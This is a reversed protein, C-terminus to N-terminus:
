RSPSPVRTRELYFGNTRDGSQLYVIGGKGFGAISRGVPMRVRHFDGKANVVDYVLEGQKSQASSTPLIWLNGDLDPMVSNLRIPPYYDPLDKLEPAIYEVPARQASPNPESPVFRRAGPQQPVDPQPRARPAMARGMSEATATRTSDILRQKDEDTLRKWDYPLKTTSHKTGDADIWDIHYDQGRVIALSGDSLLAWNDVTEIPFVSYRLPGGETARGMLKTTGGWQVIGLTDMRRTGLDARLIPVTDGKQSARQADSMARVAEYNPKPFGQFIMRGKSDFATGHNPLTVPSDEIPQAIARVVEGTPGVILMTRANMDSTMLTDGIYRVLPVARPGYSNANGPASDVPVSLVKLSSDMLLMRRRLGDNVIIRGGGVDRVDLLSGLTMATKSTAAPLEVVRVANQGGVASSAISLASCTMALARKMPIDGAPITQSTPRASEGRALDSEIRAVTAEIARLQESASQVASSTTGGAKVQREFEARIRALDLRLVILQSAAGLTSAALDSRERQGEVRASAYGTNTGWAMGLVLAVVVAAISVAVGALSRLSSRRRPVRVHAERGVVPEASFGPAAAADERALARFRARLDEDNQMPVTTGSSKAFSRREENM